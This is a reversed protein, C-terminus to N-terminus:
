IRSIKEYPEESSIIDPTKQQVLLEALDSIAWFISEADEDPLEIGLDDLIRLFKEFRKSNQM